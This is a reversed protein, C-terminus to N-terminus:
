PTKTEVSLPEAKDTQEDSLLNVLYDGALEVIRDISKPLTQQVVRSNAIAPVVIIACAQKSTPLLIRTLSLVIIIITIPKLLPMIKSRRDEIDDADECMLSCFLTVSLAIAMVILITLTTTIVINACDLRTILYVIFPSIEM